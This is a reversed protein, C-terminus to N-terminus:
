QNFGSYSGLNRCGPIFSFTGVVLNPKKAANEFTDKSTNACANEKM